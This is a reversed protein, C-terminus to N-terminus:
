RFSAFIIMATGFVILANLFTIFVIIKPDPKFKTSVSAALIAMIIATIVGGNATAVVRDAEYRNFSVANVFTSTIFLMIWLVPIYFVVKLVEKLAVSLTKVSM